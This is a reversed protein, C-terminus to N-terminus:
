WGGGGGGGGGGGSSGGGGSGSSSSSKPMASSVGSSLSSVLASNFNGLSGSGSFNSSTWGPRYDGAERPLLAEFHDTWPKEVGLAVAYPLFREYREVTMPPPADGGVKVANLQLQEATKLYLRFGEIQTRIDQGKRTAAPLFYSAAIAMAFLAVVLGTRLPSWEVSLKAAALLALVSLIVAFFLFGRNWKFYPAGYDKGLLRKFGENASTVGADYDGDLSM